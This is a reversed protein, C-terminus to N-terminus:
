DSLEPHKALWTLNSVKLGNYDGLIENLRRIVNKASTEKTNIEQYFSEMMRRFAEDIASPVMYRVSHYNDILTEFQKRYFEERRRGFFLPM